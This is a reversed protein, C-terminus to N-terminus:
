RKYIALNLNVNVCIACHGGLICSLGLLLGFTIEAIRAIDGLELLCAM